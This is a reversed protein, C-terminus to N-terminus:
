ALSLALVRLNALVINVVQLLVLVILISIDIGAIPPVIKRVPSLFPQTLKDLFYFVEANANIWSLLAFIILLGTMGSLASSALEFFALVLTHM